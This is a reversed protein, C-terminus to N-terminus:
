RAVVRLCTWCLCQRFLCTCISEGDSPCGLFVKPVFIAYPVSYLSLFRFSCDFCSPLHLASSEPIFIVSSIRHILTATIPSDIGPSLCRVVWAPCVPPVCSAGQASLPSPRVSRMPRGGPPSPRWVETMASPMMRPLRGLAGLCLVHVVSCTCPIARCGGLRWSVRRSACRSAM